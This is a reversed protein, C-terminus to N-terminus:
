VHKWTKRLGINSIVPQTTNFQIAIEKQKYGAKLMARIELIEAVTHKCQPNTEGKLSGGGQRGKCNRDTMNDQHTGLFLHDPNVCSPNDCHHLVHLKDPIEGVFLMWSFRHASLLKQRFGFRGYGCSDINATWDWCDSKGRVTVKQIFRNRDRDDIELSKTQAESQSRIGVKNRKLLNAVMGTSCHNLRALEAITHIEDTIYLRVIEQQKVDTFTRRAM